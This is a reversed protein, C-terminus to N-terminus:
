KELIKKIKDILDLYVTFSYEETPDYTPKIRIERNRIRMMSELEGFLKSVKEIKEKDNM